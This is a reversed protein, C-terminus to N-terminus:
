TSTHCAILSTSQPVKRGLSSGGLHIHLRNGSGSGPKCIGCCCYYCFCGCWISCRIIESQVTVLAAYLQAVTPAAAAATFHRITHLQGSVTHQQCGISSCTLHLVLVATLMHTCRVHPIHVDLKLVTLSPASICTGIGGATMCLSYDAGQQGVLYKLLVLLLLGAAKTMGSAHSQWERADRRLSSAEGDAHQRSAQREAAVQRQMGAAAVVLQQVAQREAAVQRQMGAAALVLQQVALREAAVQRQQQDLRQQQETVSKTEAVLRAVCAAVAGHPQSLDRVVLRRAEPDVLCLQKLLVAVNDMRSAAAASRCANSLVSADAAPGLAAVVLLVGESDSQEAACLLTDASVAAGENLLLQVVSTHQKTLAATLATAGTDTERSIIAGRRLLLQVMEVKGQAAAVHLPTSGNTSTCNVSAGHDLLMQVMSTDIIGAAEADAALHLATQGTSSTKAHVDAGAQLLLQVVEASAAYHLPTLSDAASRADVEAGAQLLLQVLRANGNNAALHLATLSDSGGKAIVDAGAQLLLQAPQVNAADV